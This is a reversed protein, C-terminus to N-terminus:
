AAATKTLPEGCLFPNGEYSSNTFTAFQGKNNPTKGFLNNYAVIFVALSTLDILQSPITRTLNNYSLDWSEIQNLKSFTAPISGTLCNHSLNLSRIGIINGIESPIVGTLNNYALDIGFMLSLVLGKYFYSRSKTTFEVHGQMIIPYMPDDTSEM